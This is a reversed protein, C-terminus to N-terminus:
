SAHGALGVSLLLVSFGLACAARRGSRRRPCSARALVAAAAGTFGGALKALRGGAEAIAGAAAARITQVAAVFSFWAPGIRALGAVIRANCQMAPPPVTLALGLRTKHQGGGGKKAAAAETARLGGRRPRVGAAAGGGARARPGGRRVARRAARARREAATAKEAFTALAALASAQGQRAEALGAELVAISGNERLPVNGIAEDGLVADGQFPTTAAVPVIIFQQRPADLSRQLAAYIACKACGEESMVSRKGGGCPQQLVGFGEKAFTLAGGRGFVFVGADAPSDKAAAAEAAGQRRMQEARAARLCQM